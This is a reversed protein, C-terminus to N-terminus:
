LCLSVVLAAVAICPVLVVVGFWEPVVRLWHLRVSVVWAHLPSRTEGVLWSHLVFTPNALVAAVIAISALSLALM